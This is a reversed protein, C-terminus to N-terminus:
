YSEAAFEGTILAAAYLIVSRMHLSSFDNADAKLTRLILPMHIEHRNTHRVMRRRPDNRTGDLVM